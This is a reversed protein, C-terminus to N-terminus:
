LPPFLTLAERVRPLVSELQRTTLHAGHGRIVWHGGGRRGPVKRGLTLETGLYPEVAAWDVRGLEGGKDWAWDFVACAVWSALVKHCRIRSALIEARLHTHAKAKRHVDNERIADELAGKEVVLPVRSLVWENPPDGPSPAFAVTAFDGSILVRGPGELAAWLSPSIQMRTGDAEVRFANVRGTAFMHLISTLYFRGPSNFGWRDALVVAPVIYMSTSSPRWAFFTPPPRIVAESPVGTILSEFVWALARYPDTPLWRGLAERLSLYDRDILELVGADVNPCWAAVITSPANPRHTMPEVYEM